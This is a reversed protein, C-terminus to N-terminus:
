WWWVIQLNGTYNTKNDVFGNILTPTGNEYHYEEGSYELGTHNYEAYKRRFKLRLFLNDSIRDIFSVFFKNGNGYLFDIGTDEFIWQSMDDTKWIASGLYTSLRESFRHEFALSIYGGDMVEDETYKLSSQLHVWGYRARFDIYDYDTLLAYVRFTFENTVSRTPTTPRERWKAQYKHKIRIRLPYIPRYELESQVRVNPLGIALNKWVDVYARTITFHRNIRYRTEVYLGDEPKPAPYNQMDSYFPDLLRYPKEFPTDDFRKQEMFPRAYPNDYGVDYHRKRFLVYINNYQVIGGFIYANSPIGTFQHVFEGEIGFNNIVTRGSIGGFKKERGNTMDLYTPTDLEDADYKFEVDERSIKFPKDTRIKLGNLSIYTGFPIFFLNSLDVGFSGGYFKESFNDRFESLKYPNTFYLNITSDRNLIGDKRDMSYFSILKFRKYRSLLGVGRAAFEQSSTIDGYVGEAKEISRALMDDVNQFMVGQGITVNYNGVYLKDIPGINILGIYGKYNNLGDPMEGARVGLSLKDRYDTRARVFIRRMYNNSLAEEKEDELREMLKKMSERDWGASDMRQYAYTTDSNFTDSVPNYDISNFLSNVYDVAGDVNKGGMDEMDERSFWDVNAKGFGVWKKPKQEESTVIFNRINRYGYSTLYPAYRLDSSYRINRWTRIYNIASVADVLNVRSLMLIDDIHVKNINMPKITLAEWEDMLAESPREESALREQIQEIYYPINKIEPPKKIIILDKLKKFEEPKLINYLEYYSSIYRHTERYEYLKEASAESIPLQRIENISARNIDLPMTVSILLIWIM